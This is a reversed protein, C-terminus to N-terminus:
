TMTYVKSTSQKRNDSAQQEKDLFQQYNKEMTAPSYNCGQTNLQLQVLSVVLIGTYLFWMIEGVIDRTVVLDFLKNKIEESVADNKKYKDKMLPTLINWYSIFNEPVIQNILISNNGCIKIIVSAVDQMSKKEEDTANKNKDMKDQIDKDILLDTLVKNASSSIFFYGIVDSFASKFGPYLILVIVVLGFMLTWPLFTYLSAVGINETIEGGCKDTINYVNLMFQSVLIALLYIALNIHTDNNYKKYKEPDTMIDLKLYSKIGMYYGVTVILFMVINISSAM